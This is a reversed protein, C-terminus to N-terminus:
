LINSNEALHIIIKNKKKAYQVSTAAGGSSGIVYAVVYDSQQIMWENRKCIAFRKPVFELGEPYITPVKEEYVDKKQPLYALVVGYSIQPYQQQLEELAM